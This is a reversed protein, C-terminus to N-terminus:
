TMENDKNKEVKKKSKRVLCCTVTVMVVVVLTVAVVLAPILIRSVPATCAPSDEEHHTGTGDACVCRYSGETNLCTHKCHAHGSSCENMDVCNASADKQFGVECQQCITSFNAPSNDPLFWMALHAECHLELQDKSFCSVQIRNNDPGLSIFRSEPIIPLRCSDSGLAPGSGLGHNHRVQEPGSTPKLNDPELRSVLTPEPPGPEAKPIETTKTESTAPIPESTALGTSTERHTPIPGTLGNKLKCIFRHTSKCRVSRLGWRIVQSGDLEVGVAACLVSTCTNAPEEAWTVEESEDSHTETWRFGRLPRRHDVCKIKEKQLGVWFTFNSQPLGSGSVLSLIENM